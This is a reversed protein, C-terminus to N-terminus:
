RNGWNTNRPTDQGASAVAPKRFVYLVTGPEGNRPPPTALRALLRGVPFLMFHLTRSRRFVRGDLSEWWRGVRGSVMQSTELVLGADSALDRLAESTYGLRRKRLRPEETLVIAAGPSPRDQECLLVGGPRLVRAVEHVAARDDDVFQLVEILLVTDVSEDTLPLAEASCAIGWLPLVLASATANARRMHRFSVDALLHVTGPRSIADGVSYLGNGAGLDLVEKGGYKSLMNRVPGFRRHAALEPFGFFRAYWRSVFLRLGSSGSWDALTPADLYALARGFVAGAETPIRRVKPADPVAADPRPTPLAPRGHKVCCPPWRM